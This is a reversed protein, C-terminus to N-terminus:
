GQAMRDFIGDMGEKWERMEKERRGKPTNVWAVGDKKGEAVSGGIVSASTMERYLDNAAKLARLVIGELEGLSKGWTGIVVVVCDGTGRKAKFDSDMSRVFQFDVPTNRFVSKEQVMRAFFGARERKGPGKESAM